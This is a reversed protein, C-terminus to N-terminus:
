IALLIRKLKHETTPPLTTTDIVKSCVADTDAADKAEDLAVSDGNVDVDVEVNAPASFMCDM